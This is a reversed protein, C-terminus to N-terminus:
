LHVPHTSQPGLSEDVVDTHAVEGGLLPCGGFTMEARRNQRVLNLVAEQIALGIALVHGVGLSVVSDDDGVAREGLTQQAAAVVHIVKRPVPM